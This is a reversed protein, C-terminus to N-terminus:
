GNLVSVYVMGNQSLLDRLIRGGLGPVGASSDLEQAARIATTRDGKQAGIETALLGEFRIDRGITIASANASSQLRM